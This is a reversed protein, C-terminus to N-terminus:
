DGNLQISTLVPYHDSLQENHIKHSIVKFDPDAFIYDIRLPYGLFHFSTGLGSGAEEFSDKLEGKVLKYINSFATNNLDACVITRLNTSRRHNQFIEAQEQQQFFTRSIRSFFREGPESTINEVSPIIRFSQLHVNYVRLVQDNLQIDAYIANNASDPFNVIGKEILPYKSLIAQVVKSGEPFIYSIYQYPYMKLESARTFDFEQFCVIDPEYAKVMELIRTDLDPQEIQNFRNFGRTNFGMISLDERVMHEEVGPLKYIPGFVLLAVVVAAAPLLFIRNRILLWYISFLLNVLVILPTGISLLGLIPFRSIGTFYLICTLM